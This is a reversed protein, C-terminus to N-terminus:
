RPAAGPMTKSCWCCFDHEPRLCQDGIAEHRFVICLVRGFFTDPVFWTWSPRGDWVWHMIRKRV